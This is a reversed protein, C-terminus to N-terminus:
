GEPLVKQSGKPRGPKGTRPPIVEQAYAERIAEEYAPYEDSTMLEMLRGETRRKFDQVLEQVKEPTRKGPVICLVLRHEPDCAGARTPAMASASASTAKVGNATTPATPTRAASALSTTTWPVSGPLVQSSFPQIAAGTKM